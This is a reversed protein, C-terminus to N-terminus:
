MSASINPDNMFTGNIEDHVFEIVINVAREFDHITTVSDPFTRLLHYLFM